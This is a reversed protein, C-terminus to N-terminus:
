VDNSLQNVTQSQTNGNPQQKPWKWNAPSELFEGLFLFYFIFFPFTQAATSVVKAFSHYYLNLMCIIKGSLNQSHLLPLFLPHLIASRRPVM